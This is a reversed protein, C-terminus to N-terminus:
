RDEAATASPFLVTGTTGDVELPEGDVLRDWIGALGLVAPLRYERAAIAGHSLVSGTEAVLGAARPFVMSFFPDPSRVVLIDGPEVRELDAITALKRAPGRGKGPSAAVGRQCVPRGRARLPPARDDGTQEDTSAGSRLCTGSLGNPRMEGDGPRDTSRGPSAAEAPPHPSVREERFSATPGGLSEGHSAITMEAPSAVVTARGERAPARAVNEVAPPTPPGERAARDHARQRQSILEDLSGHQDRRLLDRVERDTLWYIDEPRALRGRRVLETGLKGILRRTPPFVLGTYFHHEEDIILFTRLTEILFEALGRAVPWPALATLVSNRAHAPEDSRTAAALPGTGRAESAVGGTRAEAAAARALTLLREPDEGLTPFRLDWGPALHGFERCFAEWAARAPPPWEEPRASPQSAALHGLEALRRHFALTANEDLGAALRAPLSTPDPLEALRALEILMLAAVERVAFIVLDPEIYAIMEARLEDGLALLAPWDDVQAIREALAAVRTKFRALVSPWARRVDGGIRALFRRVAGGALALVPSDLRDGLRTRMTEPARLFRAVARLNKWFGPGDGLRPLVEALLGIQEGIGLRVKFRQKFDFADANAYIWGNVSCALETRADLPRGMFEAFSRVGRDFVEQINSWGLPSLPFPYREATLARTWRIGPPFAGSAAADAAKGEPCCPPLASM